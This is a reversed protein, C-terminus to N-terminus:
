NEDVLSLSVKGRIQRDCDLILDKGANCPLSLNAHFPNEITYQAAVKEYIEKADEAGVQAFGYFTQKRKKAHRDGLEKFLHYPVSGM